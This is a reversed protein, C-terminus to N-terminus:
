KLKPAAYSRKPSKSLAKKMAAVDLDFINKQPLHSQTIRASTEAANSKKWLADKSQAIGYTGTFLLAACILRKM